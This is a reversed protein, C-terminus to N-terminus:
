QSVAFHATCIEWASFPIKCNLVSLSFVYQTVTYRCGGIQLFSFAIVKLILVDVGSPKQLLNLPRSVCSVLTTRLSVSSLDHEALEQSWTPQSETGTSPLLAAASRISHHDPFEQPRWQRTSSRWWLLTQLQVNDKWTGDGPPTEHSSQLFPLAPEENQLCATEGSSAPLCWCLSCM